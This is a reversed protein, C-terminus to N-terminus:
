PRADLERLIRTAVDEMEEESGKEWAIQYEDPDIEQELELRLAEAEERISLSILLSSQDIQSHPLVAAVVEVAEASSGRAKWVRAINILNALADRVQGTEQSIQLSLAFNLEAEDLEELLLSIRGLNSYAYQMGRLFSVTQLSDITLQNIDKAMVLDGREEALRSYLNQGWYSNWPGGTEALLQDHEKLIREAQDLDGMVIYQGAAITNGRLAWWKHGMVNGTETLEVAAAIAESPAQLFIKGVGM